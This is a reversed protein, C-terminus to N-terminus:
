NSSHPAKGPMHNNLGQLSLSTVIKREIFNLEKHDVKFELTRLTSSKHKQGKIKKVLSKHGNSINARFHDLEPHRLVCLFKAVAFRPSAPPVFLLSPFKAPLLSPPQYCTPLLVFQGLPHDSRFLHPSRVVHSSVGLRSIFEGSSSVLCRRPLFTASPMNDSVGVHSSGLPIVCPAFDFGFLFWLCGFACAHAHVCVCTGTVYEM